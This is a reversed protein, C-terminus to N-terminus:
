GYQGKNKGFCNELYGICDKNNCTLKTKDKDFRFIFLLIALITSLIWCGSGISTSTESNKPCKVNVLPIQCYKCNKKM